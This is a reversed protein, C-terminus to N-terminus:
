AEEKSREGDDQQIALLADAALARARAPTSTGSGALSLAGALWRRGESCHDRLFWFWHLAEVLRLAIDAREPAALSWALAARVNDREMELRALQAIQERGRLNRAADEALALFYEAHRQQASEGEGQAQLQDLGFERITELMTFRPEDGSASTQLLLSRDVLSTLLDLTINGAVRDAADLSFGGSFVSLWRFLAQERPALLDYSWAIADRMTQQRQPLDRPGGTLVPLRRELRALLAGPPLVPIHAAALEIALPVGDLRRCIEAVTSENEDTLRFHPQVAQARAVFLPVAAETVPLPTVPFLHEGTLRLRSRSTVLVTLHPCSSLLTGVLPGAEVVQEFNDLVLLLRRKALFVAIQETLVREGSEPVGLAQAITAPILAPDRIAALPIFAVGDAFIDGFAAAVAMALRTKGVGGPGTLVLLRPGDPARLLAQMTAMERERGILPTLPTPVRLTLHEHQPSPMPRPLPAVHSTEGRRADRFRALEDPEIRFVGGWKRATLEGRLIARRITRESLDLAAAAQRATLFDWAPRGDVKSEATQEIM